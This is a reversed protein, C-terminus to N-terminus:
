HETHDKLRTVRPDGEFVGAIQAARLVMATDNVAGIEASLNCEIRAVFFGGHTIETGDHEIGVEILITVEVM